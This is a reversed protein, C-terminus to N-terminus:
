KIRSEVTKKAPVKQPLINDISLLQYYHLLVARKIRRRNSYYTFLLFLFPLICMTNYVYVCACIKQLNYPFFTNYIPLFLTVSKIFVWHKHPKESNECLSCFTYLILTKHINLCIEQLFPCFSVSLHFQFLIHYIHHNWFLNDHLIAVPHVQLWVARNYSSPCVVPALMPLHLSPM